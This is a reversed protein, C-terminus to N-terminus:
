HKQVAPTKPVDYKVEESLNQNIQDAQIYDYNPDNEVDDYLHYENRILTSYRPNGKEDKDDTPKAPLGRSKTSFKSSISSLGSREQQRKQRICVVILIVALLLIIPFSVFVSILLYTSLNSKQDSNPKAICRPKTGTWSGDSLCEQSPSGSLTATEPCSYKIVGGIVYRNRQFLDTYDIIVNEPIDPLKCTSVPICQPLQPYQWDGGTPCYDYNERTERMQFDPNCNFEHRIENSSYETENVKVLRSSGYDPRDPIYCDDRGTTFLEVQEVTSKCTPPCVLSTTFQIIIFNSLRLETTDAILTSCTFVFNRSFYTDKEPRMERTCNPEPLHKVDDVEIDVDRRAAIKIRVGVLKTPTPTSVVIVEDRIYKKVKSSSLKQGCKPISYTWQNGECKRYGYGYIISNGPTKCRYEVWKGDAYRHRAETVMSHRSYGPRGCDAYLEIAFQILIIIFVILVSAM